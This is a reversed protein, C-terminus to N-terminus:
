EDQDEKLGDKSQNTGNINRLLEDIDVVESLDKIQMHNYYQAFQNYILSSLYTLVIGYGVTLYVLGDMGTMYFAVGNGIMFGYGAWKLWSPAYRAQSVTIKDM